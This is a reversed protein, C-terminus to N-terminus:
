KELMSNMKARNFLIEWMAGSRRKRESDSIKIINVEIRHNM